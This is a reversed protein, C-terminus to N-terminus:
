GASPPICAKGVDGKDANVFEVSSSCNSENDPSRHANCELKDACTRFCYNEGDDHEVCASYKPCETSRTCAQIGCYGGKFQALCRQVPQGDDNRCDADSECQAGVGLDDADDGGCGTVALAVLLGALGLRVAAQTRLKAFSASM